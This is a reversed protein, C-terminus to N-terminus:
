VIHVRKVYQYRYIGNKVDKILDRLREMNVEYLQGGKKASAYDFKQKTLEYFDKQGRYNAALLRIVRKQKLFSKLTEEHILSLPLIIVKKGKWSRVHKKILILEKYLADAIKSM